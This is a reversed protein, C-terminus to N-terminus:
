VSKRSIKSVQMRDYNLCGTLDCAKRRISTKPFLHLMCAEIAAARSGSHTKNHPALCPRSLVLYGGSLICHPFYWLFFLFSTFLSLLYYQRNWVKSLFDSIFIPPLLCLNLFFFFPCCIYNHALLFCSRCCRHHQQEVCSAKFAYATSMLPCYSM